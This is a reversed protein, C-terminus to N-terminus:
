VHLVYQFVCVGPATLHRQTHYPWGYEWNCHESDPAMRRDRLSLPSPILHFLLSTLPLFPPLLSIPLFSLFSLSPPPLSSPSSPPIFPHHFSIFDWRGSFLTGTEKSAWRTTWGPTGFWSAACSKYGALIRRPARLSLSPHPLSPFFLLSPCHYLPWPSPLSPDHLLHSTLLSFPPPLYLLVVSKRSLSM